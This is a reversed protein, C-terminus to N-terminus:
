MKAKEQWYSKVDLNQIKFNINPKIFLNLKLTQSSYLQIKKSIIHSHPDKHLLKNLIM